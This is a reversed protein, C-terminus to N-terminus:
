DTLTLPGHALHQLGDGGIFVVDVVGAPIEVSYAGNIGSATEAILEGIVHDFVFVRRAAPAGAETVVGTLTAM